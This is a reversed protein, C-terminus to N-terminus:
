GAVKQGWPAPPPAESRLVFRADYWCERPRCARRAAMLEDGPPAMVRPKESSVKNKFRRSAQYQEIVPTTATTGCAKLRADWDMDFIKAYSQPLWMTRLPRRATVEEWASDLHIQDWIEPQEECRKVWTELLHQAVETRNFYITASNFQWGAAKSVAFDPEAGAVLMPLQRIIADADCWLVPRDLRKYESLIYRAKYACTREWSGMPPVGRIEHDLGLQRCSNRLGRVEEEYPTGVTYFCIVIPLAGASYRPSEPELGGWWMTPSPYEPCSGITGHEIFQTKARDYWPRQADHLYVVGGPALLTRAHEMCAGRAVGDVFVLDFTEGDVAHIYQQLPAPDEEEITANTGLPASPPCLLLRVNERPGVKDRVLAHWKTDHDISTLTAREPLRDALWLTSGGSGWELVRMGPKITKLFAERHVQGTIIRM